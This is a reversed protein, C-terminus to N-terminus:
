AVKFSDPSEKIFSDYSSSMGRKLVLLTKKRLCFQCDFHSIKQSKQCKKHWYPTNSRRQIKKQTQKLEILRNFIKSPLINKEAISLDPAAFMNNYDFDVQCYLAKWFRENSALILSHDLWDQIYIMICLM